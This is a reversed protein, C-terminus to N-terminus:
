LELAIIKKLTDRAYTKTSSSYGLGMFNKLIDKGKKNYAPRGMFLCISYVADCISKLYAADKNGAKQANIEIADLLKGDPDYGCLNTLLARCNSKNTCASIIGAAASQTQETSLLALQVLITEFSASDTEFASKEKRVGFDSSAASQSYLRAVSLTNSLWQKEDAGYNGQKLRATIEPNKLENLFSGQIFYNFDNLDEPAFSSYDAQINKLVTKSSNTTQSTHYANLSWNKGCFILYDNKLYLINTVNKQKISDPMQASWLEQLDEDLLLARNSDAIFLGTNSYVAKQLATGDIGSITRSYEVAGSGSNLRYVTIESKSLSLLRYQDRESSVVFLPNGSKVNAM